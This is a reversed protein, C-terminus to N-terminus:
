AHAYVGLEVGNPDTFHFRQGGPYPYPGQVVTGGAAEVAAQVSRGHTLRQWGLFASGDYEIALAYRMRVPFRSARM